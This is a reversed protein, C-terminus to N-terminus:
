VTAGQVAPVPHRARHAAQVINRTREIEGAAQETFIREQATSPLHFYAYLYFAFGLFVILVGSLRMIEGVMDKSALGFGELLIFGIICFVLIESRVTGVHALVPKLVGSPDISSPSAIGPENM